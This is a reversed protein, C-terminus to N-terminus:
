LIVTSLLLLMPCLPWWPLLDVANKKERSYSAVYFPGVDVILEMAINDNPYGTGIVFLLSVFGGLRDM